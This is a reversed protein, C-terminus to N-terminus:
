LLAFAAHPNQLGGDGAMIYPIFAKGGTAVQQEIATQLKMKTMREVELRMAFM